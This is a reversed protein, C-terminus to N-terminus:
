SWYTLLYSCSFSSYQGIKLNEPNSSWGILPITAVTTSISFWDILPITAVTTSISFWDILPVTSVFAKEM